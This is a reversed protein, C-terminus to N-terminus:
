FGFGSLDTEKPQKPKTGDVGDVGDGTDLEGLEALRQREAQEREDKIRQLESIEEPTIGGDVLKIFKRYRETMKMSTRLFESMSMGQNKISQLFAYEKDTMRVMLKHKLHSPKNRKKKKKTM